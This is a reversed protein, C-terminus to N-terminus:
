TTIIAPDAADALLGGAMAVLCVLYIHGRNFKMTANNFSCPLALQDVVKLVETDAYRYTAPELSCEVCRWTVSVAIDYVRVHNSKARPSLLDAM